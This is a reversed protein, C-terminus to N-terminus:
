VKAVASSLRHPFSLVAPFKPGHLAPLCRDRVQQAKKHFAVYEHGLKVRAAVTTELESWRDRFAKLKDAASATVDADAGSRSLEEAAASLANVDPRKM